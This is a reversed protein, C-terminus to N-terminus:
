QVTSELRAGTPFPYFVLSGVTPASVRTVDGSTRVTKLVNLSQSWTQQSRMVLHYLGQQDRHRPQRTTCCKTLRLATLPIYFGPTEERRNKFFWQLDILWTFVTERSLVSKEEVTFFFLAKDWPKLPWLQTIWVLLGAPLMQMQVTVTKEVERRWLMGFLLVFALFWSQRHPFAFQRKVMQLICCLRLSRHFDGATRCKCLSVFRSHSLHTAHEPGSNSSRAHAKTSRSVSRVDHWLFFKTEPHCESIIQRVRRKETEPLHQLARM